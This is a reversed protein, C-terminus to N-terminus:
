EYLEESTGNFKLSDLPIDDQTSFKMELGLKPEIMKYSEYKGPPILPSNDNFCM